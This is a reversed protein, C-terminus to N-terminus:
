ERGAEIVAAIVMEEASDALRAPEMRADACENLDVDDCSEAALRDTIQPLFVERDGLLSFRLLSAHRQRCPAPGVGVRGGCM